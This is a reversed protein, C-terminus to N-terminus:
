PVNEWLKHMQQDNIEHLKQMQETDPIAYWYQLDADTWIKKQKRSYQIPPLELPEHPLQFVVPDISIMIENPDTEIKKTGNILLVVSIMMLIILLGLVTALFILRHTRITELIDM